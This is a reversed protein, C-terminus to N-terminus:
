ATKVEWTTGHDYPRDWQIEARFVRFNGEPALLTLEMRLQHTPKSESAKSLTCETIQFGQQVFPKVIRKVVAPVLDTLREIRPEPSSADQLTSLFGPRNSLDFWQISVFLRPLDCDDRKPDRIFQRKHFRVQYQQVHQGFRVETFSRTPTYKLDVTLPCQQVLYHFLGTLEEPLDMDQFQGSREPHLLAGCTGCIVMDGFRLFPQESPALSCEQQCYACSLGQTLEFKM